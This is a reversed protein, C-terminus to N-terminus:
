SDAARGSQAVSALKQKRKVVSRRNLERMHRIKAWHRYRDFLFEAIVVGIVVVVIDHLM